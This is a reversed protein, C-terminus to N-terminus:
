LNVRRWYGIHLESNGYYARREEPEATRATILYTKDGRDTYVVFLVEHYFGLTQWRDEDDSHNRDFRELRMPDRWIQAATTFSLGHKSINEAEKAGTWEFEM